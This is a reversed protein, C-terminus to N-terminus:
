PVIVITDHVQLVGWLADITTNDGAVCGFTWDSASGEGHIEVYGGMGTTQPPISCANQAADINSQDTSSIISQSVANAAHASDPYSILFAHYYQSNPITEAVYFTGEPTKGDGEKLKDGTPSFGLGVRYSMVLAGANCLAINRASKHIVVYNDKTTDCSHLGSGATGWAATCDAAGVTNDWPVPTSSGPLCEHYTADCTYNDSQRCETAQTCDKLCATQGSSGIGFCTTGTPCGAQDCYSKTCYGNPM